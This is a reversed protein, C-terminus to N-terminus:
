IVINEASRFQLLDMAAGAYCSLFLGQLRKVEPDTEKPDRLITLNAKQLIM